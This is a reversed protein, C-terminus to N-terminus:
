VPADKMCCKETDSEWDISSQSRTWKKVNRVNETPMKVKECEGDAHGCAGADVM